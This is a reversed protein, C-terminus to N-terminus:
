CAAKGNAAETVNSDATYAKEPPVHFLVSLDETLPLQKVIERNLNDTIVYAASTHLALTM